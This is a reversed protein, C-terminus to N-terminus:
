QELVAKVMALSYKKAIRSIFLFLNYHIQKLTHCANFCFKMGSLLCHSVYSDSNCCIKNNISPGVPPDRAPNMFSFFLPDQNVPMFDRMM